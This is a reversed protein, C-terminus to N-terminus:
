WSEGVLPDTALSEITFTILITILPLQSWVDKYQAEYLTRKRKRKNPGDIDTYMSNYSIVNDSKNRLSM